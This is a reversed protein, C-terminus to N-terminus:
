CETMYRYNLADVVEKERKYYGPRRGFPQFGTKEYLARAAANDAAVELFVVRVDPITLAQALLARGLGQQRAGPAVALTLVEMEDAAKQLLIFGCPQAEIEAVWALTTALSLSGEIQSEGWREEPVFCAAHIAALAARDASQAPRLSVM